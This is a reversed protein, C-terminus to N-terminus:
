MGLCARELKLFILFVYNVGLIDVGTERKAKVGAQMVLLSFVASVTYSEYM